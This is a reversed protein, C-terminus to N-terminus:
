NIWTFAPSVLMRLMELFISMDFNNSKIILHMVYRGFYRGVYLVKSTDLLNPPLMSIPLHSKIIRPSKLQYAAYTLPDTYKVDDGKVRICGAELFPSRLYLQKKSEESDLQVNNVIQWVLEQTLTTGCKPFTVIWIDDKRPIFNWIQEAMLEFKLLCSVLKSIVTLKNPLNMCVVKSPMMVGMPSSRIM